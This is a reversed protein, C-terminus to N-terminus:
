FALAHDGRRSVRRRRLAGANPGQRRCMAGGWGSMTAVGATTGARGAGTWKESRVGRRRAACTGAEAEAERQGTAIAGRAGGGRRAVSMHTRGPPVAWRLAPRWLPALAEGGIIARKAFRRRGTRLRGPVGPGANM